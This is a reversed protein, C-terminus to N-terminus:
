PRQAVILWNTSEEDPYDIFQDRRELIQFGFERLEQEVVEPAIVHNKTQDARPRNRTRLPMNDLVVLRGGPKLAALV